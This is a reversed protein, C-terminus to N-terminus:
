CMQEVRMTRQQRNEKYQSVATSIVIIGLAYEPPLSSFCGYKIWLQTVTKNYHPNQRLKAATGRVDFVPSVITESIEIGGLLAEGLMKEAVSLSVCVGCEELIANLDDDSANAPIKIKACEEFCIKYQSIRTLLARRDAGLIPTADKKNNVFMDGFAQPDSQVKSAKSKKRIPPMAPHAPTADRAWMVEEGSRELNQLFDQQPATSEEDIPYTTVEAEPAPALPAAANRHHRKISTTLDM